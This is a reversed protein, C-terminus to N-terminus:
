LDNYNTLYLLVQGEQEEHVAKEHKREFSVM